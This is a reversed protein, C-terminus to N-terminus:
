FCHPAGSLEERFLEDARALRHEVANRLKIMFPVGLNISTSKTSGISLLSFKNKSVKQTIATKKILLRNRIFVKVQREGTPLVQKLQHSVSQSFPASNNLTNFSAMEFPNCPIAKYVSEVDRNFKKRLKKNHEHHKSASSSADLIM